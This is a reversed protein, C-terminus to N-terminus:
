LKILNKKTKIRNRTDFILKSNQEILKYNINDHDTLILICDHSKINKKNLSKYNLNFKYKRQKPFKKWFPDFYNVTFNELILQEIIKFSPSERTDDVNKKYSLGIVLISKKIKFINRKLFEKKIKKLIWKSLRDNIRASLDIFETKIKKKKCAWVLYFPDVPICHGGIGPGPYFPSFGFPKTKAADIVSNIDINFKDCIIKMENVLSINVTRYINEHLKTMEAVELSDVTKVETIKSYLSKGILKCKETFGGCIKVIHSHLISNEGPNEREPSFCLFFNSGLKFKNKINEAILDRTTGPYTTSELSILQGPKLHDFIYKITKKLYSLDPEKNKKIPTPVCIVIVDVNSILEFNTTASFYKEFKKDYFKQDITKIHFKGSNLTSVIESNIDFGVVKIKKQTFKISLPLGVYGLGIIGITINNNSIRKKLNFFHRSM